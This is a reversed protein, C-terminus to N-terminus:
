KPSATLRQLTVILQPPEAPKTLRVGRLAIADISSTYFLAIIVVAVLDDIIALATLFVKLSMPVRSGLLSLVALSFAIDTAAPSPGGGTIVVM